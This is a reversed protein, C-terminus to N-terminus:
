CMLEKRRREEGRAAVNAICNLVNTKVARRHRV